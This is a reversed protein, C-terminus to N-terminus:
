TQRQPHFRIELNTGLFFRSAEELNAHVVGPVHRTSKQESLPFLVHVDGFALTEPSGSSQALSQVGLGATSNVKQKRGEFM